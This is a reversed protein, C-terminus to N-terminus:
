IIILVLYLELWRCLTTLVQQGAAAAVRRKEQDTEIQARTMKQAARPKAAKISEMETDAMVALEKKRELQELRKKEREDQFVLLTQCISIWIISVNLM